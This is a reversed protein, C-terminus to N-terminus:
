FSFKELEFPREPTTMETIKLTVNRKINISILVRYPCWIVQIKSEANSRLLKRNASMIVDSVRKYLFVGKAYFQVAYQVM